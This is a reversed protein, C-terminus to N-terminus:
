IYDFFYYQESIDILLDLPRTPPPNRVMYRYDVDDRIPSRVQDVLLISEDSAVRLDHLVKGWNPVFM